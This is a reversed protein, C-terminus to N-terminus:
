DTVGYGGYAWETYRQAAIQSATGVMGGIHWGNEAVCPAVYITVMLAVAALRKNQNSMCM